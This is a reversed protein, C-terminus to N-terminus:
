IFYDIGQQPEKLVNVNGRRDINSNKQIAIVQRAIWEEGNTLRLVIAYEIARLWKKFVRM